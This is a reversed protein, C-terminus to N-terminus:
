AEVRIKNNYPNKWPKTGKMQGPREKIKGRLFRDQALLMVENKKRQLKFAIESVSCGENWMKDFTKVKNETISLDIGDIDFMIYQKARGSM